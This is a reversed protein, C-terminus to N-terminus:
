DAPDIDKLDKTELVISGYLHKMSGWDHADESLLRQPPPPVSENPTSVINQNQVQAQNPNEIAETQPEKNKM